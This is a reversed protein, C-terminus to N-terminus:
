QIGSTWQTWQDGNLRKVMEVVSTVVRKAPAASVWPGEYNAQIALTAKDTARPLVFVAAFAGYSYPLQVLQCTETEGYLFEEDRKTLM